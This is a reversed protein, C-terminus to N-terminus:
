GYSSKVRLNLQSPLITYLLTRRKRYKIDQMEFPDFNLPDEKM